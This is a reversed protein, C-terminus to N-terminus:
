PGVGGAHHTTRPLPLLPLQRSGSWHARLAVMPGSQGCSGSSAAWSPGSTRILHCEDMVLWRM